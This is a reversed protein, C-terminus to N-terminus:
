ARHAAARAAIFWEDVKKEDLGFGSANERHTKLEFHFSEGDGRLLRVQFVEYAESEGAVLIVGRPFQSRLSMGPQMVGAENLFSHLQRYM